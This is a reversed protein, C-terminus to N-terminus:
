SMGQWTTRGQQLYRKSPDIGSSGRRSVQNTLSYAEELLSRPLHTFSIGHHALARALVSQSVHGGFQVPDVLLAMANIARQRGLSAVWDPDTTPTIFILTATKAARGLMALEAFPRNGAEALCLARMLSWRHAPTARPELWVLKSGAMALGVRRHENLGRVALSAALVISLELTTDQGSGAQVDEDLDVFIWWDGSTAAELNRVILMDHHATAHWHIRKLSDGPIYDRVGIDSIERELLGHRRWQDGAWGGPNIKINTLPLIPPTVMITDSHQNQITLSYIGFPDGTLLRTPGLTYLGRRKFLYNPYRTRSTKSGVDSVLRIPSVLNDSTDIIEVWIAPLRSTNILQLKEPVSEGVNAWALHIHRQISLGQSLSRVWIVALLWAGGTGILFVLWGRFGTLSYLIAFIGVLFPLMHMNLHYDVWRNDTKAKERRVVKRM